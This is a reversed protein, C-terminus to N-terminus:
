FPGERLPVCREVYIVQAEHSTDNRWNWVVHPELIISDGVCLTRSEDGVVIVLEGRLIFIWLEDPRTYSGGSSGGSPVILLAPELGHGPKALEEWRVGGAMTTTTREDARTLRDHTTSPPVFASIGFGLADAIVSLLQPTVSDHGLELSSLASRSIGARRATEDLTLGRAKRAARIRAGYSHSAPLTAEGDLAQGSAGAGALASKIAAPNWGQKRRLSAIWSARDVQDRSFVRQGGLTREPSILGQKEWLRLTQVSVGINAALEGVRMQHQGEPHKSMM